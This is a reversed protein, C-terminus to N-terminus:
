HSNVRHSSVDNSSSIYPLSVCFRIPICFEPSPKSICNTRPVINITNSTNQIPATLQAPNRVAFASSPIMFTICLSTRQLLLFNLLVCSLSSSYIVIHVLEGTWIWAGSDSHAIHGIQLYSQVHCIVGQQLLILVLPIINHNSQIHPQCDNILSQM